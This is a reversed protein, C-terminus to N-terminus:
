GVAHAEPASSWALDEEFAARSAPPSFRFLRHYAEVGQAVVAQRHLSPDEAKSSALKPPRNNEREIAE